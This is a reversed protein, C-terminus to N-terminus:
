PARPTENSFISDCWYVVHYGSSGSGWQFSPGSYLAGECLYGARTLKEAQPASLKMKAGKAFNVAEQHRGLQMMDNFYGNWNAAAGPGAAVRRDLYGKQTELYAKEDVAVKALRHGRPATQIIEEYDAIAGMLNSGTTGRGAARMALVQLRQDLTIEARALIATLNRDEVFPDNPALAASMISKFQADTPTAREIEQVPEPASGCAAALLMMAAIGIKLIHSM